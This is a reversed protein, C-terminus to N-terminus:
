VVGTEANSDEAHKHDDKADSGAHHSKNAGFKPRGAARIDFVLAFAEPMHEAIVKQQAQFKQDRRVDNVREHFGAHLIQDHKSCNHQDAGDDAIREIRLQLGLM